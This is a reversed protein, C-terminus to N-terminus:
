ASDPKFYDQKPKASTSVPIVEVVDDKVDDKAPVTYDPLIGWAQELDLVTENDQIVYVYVKNKPNHSLAENIHTRVEESVESSNMAKRRKLQYNGYM